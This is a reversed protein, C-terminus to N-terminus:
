SFGKSFKVNFSKLREVSLFMILNAKNSSVTLGVSNFKEKESRKPEHNDETYSGLKRIRKLNGGIMLM